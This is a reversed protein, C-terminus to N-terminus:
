YLFVDKRDQQPQLRNRVWEHALQQCVCARSGESYGHSRCGNDVGEVDTDNWVVEWEDCDGSVICELRAVIEATAEDRRRM